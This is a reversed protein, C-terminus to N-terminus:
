AHWGDTIFVHVAAKAEEFRGERLAMIITDDGLVPNAGIFFARAVDASEEGAVELWLRHALRLRAECTVSPHTEGAEWRYPEKSNRTGSLAAVLTAGLEANLERVVERIPGTEASEAPEQNDLAEDAEEAAHPEATGCRM